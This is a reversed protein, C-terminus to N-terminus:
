RTEYNECTSNIMEHIGFVLNTNVIGEYFGLTSDGEAHDHIEYVAIHSESFSPIIVGHGVKGIEELICKLM